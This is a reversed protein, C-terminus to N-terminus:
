IKYKVKTLISWNITKNQTRSQYFYSFMLEPFEANRGVKEAKTYANRHVNQISHNVSDNTDARSYPIKWHRETKIEAQNQRERRRDGERYGQGETEEATERQCNCDRYIKDRQM